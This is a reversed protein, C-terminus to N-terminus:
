PHSKILKFEHTYTGNPNRTSRVQGHAGIYKRTGGVVPILITSAKVIEESDSPYLSNGTAVIQGKKLNFVLYRRRVERFEGSDSPRYDTITGSLDGALKGSKKFLKAGFVTTAIEGEDGYTHIEPVEQDLTFREFKARCVGASVTGPIYFLALAFSVSIVLLFNTQQGM